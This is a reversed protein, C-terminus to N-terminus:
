RGEARREQAFHHQVLLRCLDQHRASLIGSPHGNLLIHHCPDATLEKREGLTRINGFDQYTTCDPTDLLLKRFLSIDDIESCM